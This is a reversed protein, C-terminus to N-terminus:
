NYSLFAISLTLPLAPSQSFMRGRFRYACELGLRVDKFGIKGNDLLIGLILIPLAGPLLPVTGLVLSGSFLLVSM